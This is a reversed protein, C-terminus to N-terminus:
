RKTPSRRLARRQAIGEDARSGAGSAFIYLSNPRGALQTWESPQPEKVKVIMDAAEFVSPPDPLITAGAKKYASDPCDIGDGARTEVVVEHGAAVLEASWRQIADVLDRGCALAAAADDSTQRPVGFIVMAGDGTFQELVGGEALAAREVRSHFNRLFHATEAPTMHESRRTFGALLLDRDRLALHQQMADRLLDM